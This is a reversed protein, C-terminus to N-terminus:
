GNSQLAHDEMLDVIEHNGSKYAIDQPTRGEGDLARTNGGREVLLASVRVSNCAGAVHLPTSAQWDLAEMEAGRDLLITAIDERDSEATRHLPTNGENDVARIDCGHRIFLEVADCTWRSRTYKARSRECKVASMLHLPTSGQNNRARVDARNRILLRVTTPDTIWQAMLHLASNGDMDTKRVDCGREVLLAVTHYKWVCKRCGHTCECKATIAKHLVSEDRKNCANIDCGYQILLEATHTNRNNAALHLATNGDNDVDHVQIGKQILTQSIKRNGKFGASYHLAAHYSM